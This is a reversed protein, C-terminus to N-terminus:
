HCSAWGSDVGISGAAPMFAWDYGAPRLVLKLVGYANSLRVESNPQVTGFATLGAGGGTGVVFERIGDGPDPGGAPDQPAFREYDMDNGNVIVDAGAAYLAAWAGSMSTVNGLAGSSFRPDNWYALVCAHPNAALDKALWKVMPSAAGCGGNSTCTSDLAYIRWKGLDYTYWSRGPVGVSSGFETFYGAAKKTKWDVQGPVPRTRSKVAGWSPRYCSKFNAASGSPYANDGTTFITGPIGGLLKATAEDAPSSCSAIEGAGALVPDASAGAEVLFADVDVRAHGVTGSPRVELTHSGVAPWGARYVVRRSAATAANLNVTEVYKGDLYVRAAGRDPGITSVWAIDSGSFTVKARPGSTTASRTAGGYYGSGSAKTWTGSFAVAPDTEQVVRQGVPGGAAMASVNGSGDVAEVALRYTHGPPVRLVTERGLPTALPVGAYPGNDSSMSLRYAAVSGGPDTAAPWVVKVALAKQGATWGTVFSTIPPKAVPAGIDTSPAVPVNVQANFGLAVAQVTAIGPSTALFRGTADITGGSATWTAAGSPVATANLAADWGLVSFATTSGVTVSVPTPRIAFGALPGTPATSIVALANTVMRQGGSPRNALTAVPDGPRRAVLTTSGGGDFNLGRIAGEAQLLQGLETLRVGASYGAQAGDVTAIVVRGDATVGLGTRADTANAGSWAPSVGVVGNQLVWEGGGIAESVTEWGPTIATRVTVAQGPTLTALLGATAAESLVLTGPALPTNGSGINVSQVIAPYDGSPAIPGPVGTLVVETGDVPTATSTGFRPTYLDIQYDARAQNVRGIPYTTGTGIDFSATESVNDMRVTRSADVGFTPRIGARSAMLEGLHVHIGNPAALDGGLGSWFDGNVAAVVQHGESTARYAMSQVTELSTATDNSLLAEFRVNPDSPDVRIFQVTSLGGTDTTVQGWARITGPGIREEGAEAFPVTVSARVVPAPGAIGSLALIAAYM